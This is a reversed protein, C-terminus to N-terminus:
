REPNYGELEELFINSNSYQTESSPTILFKLVTGRTSGLFVVTRNRHPGAETDVVMTNLQYRLLSTFYLLFCKNSIFLVIVITGNM